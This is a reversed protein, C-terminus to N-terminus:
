FRELWNGFTHKADKRFVVGQAKKAIVEKFKSATPLGARAELWEDTGQVIDAFVEMVVGRPKLHPSRSFKYNKALIEGLNTVKCYKM